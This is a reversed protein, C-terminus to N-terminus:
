SEESKKSPKVAYAVGISIAYLTLLPAAMLLQSVVDPPTLLASLIFLVLVAHRAYYILTLHTVLGVRALFYTAVPLEFTIGFALLMRSSFSLYESIRIAPDVGIKVYENLLFPFGVPFVVRYCFVAGALFFLTGFFVFSRAHRAESQRLGPVVFRWVQHLVVPLALFFGAIFSVLLRTFFAEAVGTGILTHEIGRASAAANLPTTLFDFLRSAQPYCVAFGAGVALLGIALRRRLEELHGTLPLEADHM